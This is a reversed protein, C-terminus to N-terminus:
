LRMQKVARRKAKQILTKHKKEAATLPKTFKSSPRRKAQEKKELQTMHKKVLFNHKAPSIALTRNGCNSEDDGNPCDPVTDCWWAEPICRGCNVEGDACECTAEDAYDGCDNDGLSFFCHKFM